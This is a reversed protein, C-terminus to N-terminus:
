NGWGGMKLGEKHYHAVALADFLHANFGETQSGKRPKGYIEKLVDNVQKKTATAHGAIHAKITPRTYIHIESDFGKIIKAAGVIQGINICTDFVSKGVPKGHSVMGEIVLHDFKTIKGEMLKLFYWTAATFRDMIKDGQLVVCACTEPGPDIGLIKTKM